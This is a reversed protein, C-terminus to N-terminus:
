LRLSENRSTLGNPDKSFRVEHFQDLEASWALRSVCLMENCNDARATEDNGPIDDGPNAERQHNPAAVSSPTICM